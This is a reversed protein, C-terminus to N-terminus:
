WKPHISIGRLLCSTASRLISSKVLRFHYASQMNGKGQRANATIKGFTIYDREGFASCVRISATLMSSDGDARNAAIISTEAEAKSLSYARKQAPYTLVPWSEDANVIDSCNDHIVSSSCTYVFAKVTGTNRAALLINHSGTVNVRRFLAPQM